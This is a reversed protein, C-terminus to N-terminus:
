TSQLVHRGSTASCSLVWSQASTMRAWSEQALLDVVALEDLVRAWLGAFSEGGAQAIIAKQWESKIVVPM